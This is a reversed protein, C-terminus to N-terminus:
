EPTFTHNIIINLIEAPENEISVQLGYKPIELDNFQSALLNPNFFHSKRKALRDAIVKQEGHLHVWHINQAKSSLIARYKEKLASCSLVAGKDNSWKEIATALDQLWPERDDDNLPFGRKMKDINSQPHFDDADFHPLGLQEALAAGITSKGSGSVGFVIYVDM